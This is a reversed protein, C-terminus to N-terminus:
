SKLIITYKLRLQKNCYGRRSEVNIIHTDPSTMATKTWISDYYSFTMIWQLKVKKQRTFTLLILNNWYLM